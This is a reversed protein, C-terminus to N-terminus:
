TTAGLTSFDDLQVTAGPELTVTGTANISSFAHLTMNANVDLTPVSIAGGNLILTSGLTFTGATASLPCNAGLTHPAPLLTNLVNTTITPATAFNITGSSWNVSAGATLSVTSLNLTGGLMNVKANTRFNTTGSLNMTSGTGINLTASAAPLATSS